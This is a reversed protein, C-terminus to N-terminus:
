DLVGMSVLTAEQRLTVLEKLPKQAEEVKKRANARAERLATLKKELVDAPTDKKDLAQRLDAVALQMASQQGGAPGGRGGFGGFAGARADRQATQVAEIKPWLVKFEDDSAGLQEKMRTMMMQQFQAPDFNGGPGGPGGGAGAQALTSGALVLTLIATTGALWNFQKM